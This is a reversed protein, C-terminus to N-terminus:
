RAASREVRKLEVFYSLASGLRHEMLDSAALASGNLVSGRPKLEFNLTYPYRASDGTGVDGHVDDIRLLGTADVRAEVDQFAGAGV